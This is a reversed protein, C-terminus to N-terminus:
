YEKLFSTNQHIPRTTFRDFFQSVSDAKLGLGLKLRGLTYPVQSELVAKQLRYGPTNMNAMNHGITQMALQNAQLAGQTINL